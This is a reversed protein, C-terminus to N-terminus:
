MRRERERERERERVSERERLRDEKINRKVAGDKEDKRAKKMREKRYVINHRGRM